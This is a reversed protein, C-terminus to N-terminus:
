NKDDGEDSVLFIDHECMVVPPYNKYYVCWRSKLQKIKKILKMDLGCYAELLRRLGVASGSHPFYVIAHAENLVRRTDKGSTALHSTILVTIKHHRGIELMQNLLNYVAERQRKDSIVDIDDFIVCSNAFESIQIPDTVLSEDIAVRKPKVVDLSTDESLSSFLYVPIKPKMKKLNKIYNATFTSKGAGSAGTIYIIQRETDPDPIMDFKGDIHLRTFPKSYSDEEVKLESTVSVIKKDYKGGEVKALFRGVREFNLSM